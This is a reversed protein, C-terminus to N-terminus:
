IYYISNRIVIFTIPDVSYSCYNILPILLGFRLLSHNLHGANKMRIANERSVPVKGNQEEDLTRQLVQQAQLEVLLYALMKFVRLWKIRMDYSTPVQAM